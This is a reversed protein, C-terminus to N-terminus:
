LTMNAAIEPIIGRIKKSLEQQVAASLVADSCIETCLQCINSYRSPLRDNLGAKNLMMAFYAPGAHVLTRVFVNGRLATMVESLSQEFANGLKLSACIESGACCPFIDGNPGVTLNLFANCSGLPIEEDFFIDDSPIAEKARGIPSVRSMAVNVGGQDEGSLQSLVADARKSKTTCVRLSVRVDYEKAAKIVYSVPKSPLFEQHMADVSLEINEVGAHKLESLKQHAITSSKGWWGNTVISNSFGNNKAHRLIELMEGWFITAEGGGVHCRKALNPLAAAESVVRKLRELPMREASRDPGCSTYCHNCRANCFHTTELVLTNFFMPFDILDAVPNNRAAVRVCSTASYDAPAQNEVISWRKQQFYALLDAADRCYITGSKNLDDMFLLDSPMAEGPQRLYLLEPLLGVLRVAKVWRAFREKNSLDWHRRDCVNLVTFPWHNRLEALAYAAEEGSEFHQGRTLLHVYLEKSRCLDLLTPLLEMRGFAEVGVYLNKFEPDIRAVLEGLDAASITRKQGSGPCVFCDPHCTTNFLLVRSSM